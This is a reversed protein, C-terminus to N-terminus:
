TGETHLAHAELAPHELLSTMALKLAAPIRFGTPQQIDIDIYPWSVKIYSRVTQGGGM